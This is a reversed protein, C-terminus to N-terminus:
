NCAREMLTTTDLDNAVLAFQGKTIGLPEFPMVAQIGPNSLHLTYCGVFIQTTGSTTQVTQAVPVQYYY